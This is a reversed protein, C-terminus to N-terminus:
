LDVKFKIGVEMKSGAWGGLWAAWGALWGLCGALGALGALWGLWGALSCFPGPAMPDSVLTSPALLSSLHRAAANGEFGIPMHKGIVSQGCPGLGRARASRVRSLGHMSSGVDRFMNLVV